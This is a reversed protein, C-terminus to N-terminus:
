FLSSPPFNGESLCFLVVHPFTPPSLFRKRPFKKWQSKVRSSHHHVHQKCMKVFKELTHKSHPLTMTSPIQLIFGFCRARSRGANHQPFCYDKFHPSPSCVIVRRRGQLSFLKWTRQCFNSHFNWNSSITKAAM